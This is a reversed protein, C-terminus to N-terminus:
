QPFVTREVIGVLIHYLAIQSEQVHQTSESPVVIPYDTLPALKGGDRGLLGITIMGQSKAARVAEVVVESNGSTSIALLVDGKRGLAEVQRAFIREFTYDNGIATLISSDTTLAIAPLAPREFDGSLRCVFETAIHQSDAASGGNGCVLLKNGRAFASSLAEAADLLVPVCYQLAQRKM